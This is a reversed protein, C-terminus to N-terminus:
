TNDGIQMDKQIIANAFDIWSVIAGLLELVALIIAGTRLDACFCCVKVRPLKEHVNM